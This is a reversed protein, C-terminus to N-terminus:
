VKDGLTVAISWWDPNQKKIAKVAQKAANMSTFLGFCTAGSGSMRALECGKQKEIAELVESIVPQMRIAISQLDNRGSKAMELMSGYDLNFDSTAGVLDFLNFVEATAVEVGPNVLVAPMTGLGPFPMIEEGYSQMICTKSLYCVPIDAGLPLFSEAHEDWSVANARALLKLAAAANASGGGLGSAIPIKKNLHYALRVPADNYKSVIRVAKMILNDEPAPLYKAFKGKAKLSFEEALEVELEDGFDAFVVLSHLPHYGTDDAKGVHLTLNIKARATENADMQYFIPADEPILDKTM